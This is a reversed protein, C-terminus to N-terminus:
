GQGMLLSCLPLPLVLPTIHYATAPGPLAETPVYRCHRSPSTGAFNTLGCSERKRRRTGPAPVGWTDAPKAEPKQFSVSCPMQPM